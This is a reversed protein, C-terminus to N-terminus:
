VESDETGKTMGCYRLSAEAVLESENRSVDENWPVEHDFDSKRMDM